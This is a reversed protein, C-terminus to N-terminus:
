ERLNTKKMEYETIQNMVEAKKQAEFAKKRFHKFQPIAIILVLFIFGLVTILAGLLIYSPSEGAKTHPIYKAISRDSKISIQSAKIPSSQFSFAISVSEGRRIRDTEALYRPKNSPLFSRSSFNSSDIDNRNLEVFIHEAPSWGINEIVLSQYTIDGFISPESLKFVINEDEWVTVYLTGIISVLAIVINLFLQKMKLERGM